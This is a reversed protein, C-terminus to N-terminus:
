QNDTNRKSNHLSYKWRYFTRLLYLPCAIVLLCLMYLVFIIPNGKKSVIKRLVDKNDQNPSKIYLLIARAGANFTSYYNKYSINFYKKAFRRMQISSVFRYYNRNTNKNNASWSDGGHDVRRYVSMKDEMYYIDGSLSLLFNLKVDGQTQINNFDEMFQPNDNEYISTNYLKAATTGPFYADIENMWLKYVHTKCDVLQLSNITKPNDDEDVICCNHTCAIFQGSELIDVQRQLKNEDCWYDDCECTIYYKGKVLPLIYYKIIDIGQSYKNDKQLIATIKNPFKRVYEEIIERTGDTSADDHIIIQFDFSTKQSLVSEIAKRIYREHNYAIMGISVMIKHPEM